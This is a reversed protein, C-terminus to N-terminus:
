KLIWRSVMLTSKLGYTQKYKAQRWSVVPLRYFVYISYPNSIAIIGELLETKCCKWPTGLHAYTGLTTIVKLIVIDNIHSDGSLEFDISVSILKTKAVQCVTQQNIKVKPMISLYGAFCVYNVEYEDTQLSITLHNQKCNSAIMECSCPKLQM